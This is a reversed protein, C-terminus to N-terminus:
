VNIANLYKESLPKNLYKFVFPNASARDIDAPSISSSLVIIKSKSVIHKSLENDKAVEDLFGFGDMIPMNLDLFIIAPFEADEKKLARLHDLAAMASFKVTVEDAFNTSLIMRENIFNDIQDEDVLLVNKCKAPEQFKSKAM